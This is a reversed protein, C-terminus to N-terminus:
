PMEVMKGDKYQLTGTPFREQAQRNVPPRASAKPPKPKVEEEPPPATGPETIMWSHAIKNCRKAVDELMCVGNERRYTRSPMQNLENFISQKSPEIVKDVYKQGVEFMKMVEFGADAVEKKHMVITETVEEDSLESTQDAAQCYSWYQFACAHYSIHYVKGDLKKLNEQYDALKKEQEVRQQEELEAQERAIREADLEAQRAEAEQQERMIAEANKVTTELQLTQGRVFSDMIEVIDMRGARFAITRAIDGNNDLSYYDINNKLLYSVVEAQGARAAYYLATQGNRDRANVNAGGELLAQVVNLAEADKRASAILLIPIGDSNLANPSAGRTILLKVDDSRGLSARYAIEDPTQAPPMQAYLPGAMFTSLVLLYFVRNIRSM